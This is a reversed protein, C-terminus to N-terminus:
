FATLGATKRGAEDVLLLDYRQGEVAFTHEGAVKPVGPAGGGPDRRQDVAKGTQPLRELAGYSSPM